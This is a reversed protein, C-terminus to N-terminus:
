SHLQLDKLDFLLDGHDLKNFELTRNAFTTAGCVERGCKTGLVRDRDSRFVFLNRGEYQFAPTNTDNHKVDACDMTKEKFPTLGADGYTTAFVEGETFGGHQGFFALHEAFDGASMTTGHLFVIPLHKRQDKPSDRGGFSGNEGLDKRELRDATTEGYKQILFDYFDGSFYGNVECSCFLFLLLLASRM